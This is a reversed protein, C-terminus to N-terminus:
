TERGGQITTFVVRDPKFEWLSRTPQSAMKSEAEIRVPEGAATEIVVFGMDIEVPVNGRDIKMHIATSSRYQEGAQEVIASTWGAKAGAMEMVYWREETVSWAQDAAKQGVASGVALMLVLACIIQRVSNWRSCRTMVMEM